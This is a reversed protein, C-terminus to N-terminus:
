TRKRSGPTQTRANRGSSQRQGSLRPRLPRAYAVLVARFREQLGNLTSIAEQDLVAPHICACLQRRRGSVGHRRRYAVLYVNLVGAVAELKKHAFTSLVALEANDIQLAINRPLWRYHAIAGNM